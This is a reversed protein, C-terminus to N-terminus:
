TSATSACAPPGEARLPGVAVRTECAAPEGSASVVAATASGLSTGGPTTITTVVQHLGPRAFTHGGTVTGDSDVSGPSRTGDGWDIVVRVAGSPPETRAVPVTVPRGAIASIPVGTVTPPGTAAPPQQQQPPPQQQQPPPQQSPPAAVRATSTTEVTQQQPAFVITVRVPYTGASQWAHTGRVEYGPAGIACQSACAVTGASQTGDGWEVTATYQAPDANTDDEFTAVLVGAAQQGATADVDRGQAGTIAAHATGPLALAVLMLAFLLRVSRRFGSAHAATTL